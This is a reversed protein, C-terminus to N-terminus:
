EGVLRVLEALSIHGAVVHALGARCLAARALGAVCGIM